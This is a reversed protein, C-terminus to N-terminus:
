KAGIFEDIAVGAQKLIGILTGVKIEKHNAVVCVQSSRRMITHSGKQRIATFGPKELRRITEKGSVNALKPPM